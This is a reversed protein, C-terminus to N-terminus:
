FSSTEDSQAVPVSEPDPNYGLRICLTEYNPAAKLEALIEQPVERRPKLGIEAGGRGSDGSLRLASFLTAFDPNYALRLCSCIKQMQVEPDSVFDEYRLWQRDAYEELFLLYRRAYENLNGPSFHVWNQRKLSIYSDLPHRLTVLSLVEYDEELLARLSPRQPVSPGYCYHSHSHDRLVLDRGEANSLDSLTALGAMFIQILAAQSPPASGQKCLGILDTPVFGQNPALASLPDVESLLRTCPMAAICKSLLTGGTCAFHHLSRLVPRTGAAGPAALLDAADTLLASIEAQRLASPLDASGRGAAGAGVLAALAPFSATTSM